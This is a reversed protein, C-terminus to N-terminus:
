RNGRLCSTEPPIQRIWEGAQWNQQCDDSDVCCSWGSREGLGCCGACEFLVLRVPVTRVLLGLSSHELRQLKEGWFVVSQLGGPHMGVVIRV